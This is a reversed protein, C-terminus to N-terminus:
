INCWDVEPMVCVKKNWYETYETSTLSILTNLYIKRIREHKLIIRDSNVLAPQEILYQLAAVIKDNDKEPIDTDFCPVYALEDTYKILNDSFLPEPVTLACSFGDFPVQIVIVDPHRSELGYEDFTTLYGRLEDRKVFDDESVHVEGINGLYDCDFYPIPIVRVTNASDSVACEFVPKMTDWWEARCPLFLIDKGSNIFLTRIKQGVADILSDLQSIGENAENLSLQYLTECYDELLKITNAANGRFKKELLNGLSVALDQCSQLIQIRSNEPTGINLSNLRQHLSMLLTPIKEYQQRIGQYPREISLKDPCLTYRFPNQKKEKKYIKEQEKFVPYEHIGGPRKRVMYDGYLAKLMEDYKVPAPVTTNEFPLETYKDFYDIPFTCDRYLIWSYLLYAEKAEESRAEASIKDILHALQNEIHRNRDITVNNIEEIKRLQKKLEISNIGYTNILKLATLLENGRDDREKEMQDDPFLKDYPYIDVGVVYPCGHFKKLHEPRMDISHSNTIRGFPYAYEEQEDTTLICYGEPLEKKAYEFFLDYDDRMMTIDLDDDWPIYGKHRVAGLLTGYNAFWTLDHKKCIRDVTALVELQAAWYRKMMEPIYFGERVEDYFYDNTFVLEDM